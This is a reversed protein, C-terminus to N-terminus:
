SFSLSSHRANTSCSVSRSGAGGYTPPGAILLEQTLRDDDALLSFQGGGIDPAGHAIQVSSHGPTDLAERLIVYDKWRV